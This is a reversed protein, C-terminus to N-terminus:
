KTVLEPIDKGISHRLSPKHIKNFHCIKFINSDRPGEEAALERTSIYNWLTIRFYFKM